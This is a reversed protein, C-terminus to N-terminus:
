IAAGVTILMKDPMNEALWRPLCKGGGEHIEKRANGAIVEKDAVAINM